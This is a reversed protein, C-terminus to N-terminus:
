DVHDGRAARHHLREAERVHHPITAVRSCDLLTSIPAMRYAQRVMFLWARHDVGVSGRRHTAPVMWRRRFELQQVKASAGSSFGQGDESPGAPLKVM